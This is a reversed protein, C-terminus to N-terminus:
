GKVSLCARLNLVQHSLMVYRCWCPSVYLLLLPLWFRLRVTLPTRLNSDLLVPKPNTGNVLRCTTCVILALLFMAMHMSDHQTRACLGYKIEAYRQTPTHTCIGTHANMRAHTRAHMRAHTHTHTHTHTHQLPDMIGKWVETWM